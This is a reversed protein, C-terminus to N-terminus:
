ESDAVRKVWCRKGDFVVGYEFVHKAGAERVKTAYARARIQELARDMADQPTESRGVTKLELVAGRDEGPRPLVLVDARGFGSERNSVVRHTGEVFLLLGIIFAHYVAEVPRAGFDHSSMARVLTDELGTEFVEVDGSLMARVM